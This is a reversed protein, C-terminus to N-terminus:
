LLPASTGIDAPSFHGLQKKPGRFDSDLNKNASLVALNSEIKEHKRSRIRREETKPVSRQIAELMSRKRMLFCEEDDLKASWLM